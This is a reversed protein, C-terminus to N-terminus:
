VITGRDRPLMRRLAAMTGYVTGLYSVETSRRFEADSILTFPAFVTATANNVWVDIPGLQEEVERAAADVAGADAVDAVVVAARGGAAEVDARAGTLGARGRAILGVLEGRRGFETATARGVGGSAGTVVVVRRRRGIV